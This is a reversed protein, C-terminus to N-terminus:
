GGSQSAAAEGHSFGALFIDADATREYRAALAHFDPSHNPERLHALEHVLVADLVWDPVGRLRDSIRIQGTASTTSGFRTRQNGVWRVSSPHIGDDFLRRNLEAARAELEADGPASSAARRELRAILRAITGLNRELDFRAPVALQYGLPTKTASITKRRRASRRLTISGDDIGARVDAVDM